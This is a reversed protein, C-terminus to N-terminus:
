NASGGGCLLRYDCCACNGLCHLWILLNVCIGLCVVAAEWLPITWLSLICSLSFYGARGTGSVAFQKQGWTRFGLGQCHWLTQLSCFYVGAQVGEELRGGLLGSNSSFRRLFLARSSLFPSCFSFSSCYDVILFGPIRWLFIPAPACRSAPRNRSANPWSWRWDRARSPWPALKIVPYPPPPFFVCM